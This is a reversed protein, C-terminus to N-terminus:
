NEVEKLARNNRTIIKVPTPLKNKMKRFNKTKMKNKTM